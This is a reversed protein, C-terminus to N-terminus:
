QMSRLFALLTQRKERTITNVAKSICYRREQLLFYEHFFDVLDTLAVM